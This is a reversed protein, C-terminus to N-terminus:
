TSALLTDVVMLVAVPPLKSLRAISGAAAVVLMASVMSVVVTVRVAVGLTASPPLM